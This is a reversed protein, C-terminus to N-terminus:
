STKVAALTFVLPIEGYKFRSEVGVPIETSVEVIIIFTPPSALVTSRLLDIVDVRVAPVITLM